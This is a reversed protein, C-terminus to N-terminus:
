PALVQLSLTKYTSWGVDPNFRNLIAILVGSLLPLAVVCVSLTTGLLPSSLGQYELFTSGCGGGRLGLLTVDKMGAATVSM